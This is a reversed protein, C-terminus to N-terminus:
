ESSAESPVSLAEAAAAEATPNLPAPQAKEPLRPFGPKPGDDFARPSVRRSAVRRSAVRRSAVAVFVNSFLCLKFTM